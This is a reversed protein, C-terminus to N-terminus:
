NTIKQLEEIRSNVTEYLEKRLPEGSLHKTRLLQLKKSLEQDGLSNVWLEFDKRPVHFEICKLNVNQIKDVFNKLSNAYVGSHQDIDYYFHFAKETPVPTLIKSALTKDTKPIGLAQKGLTTITYHQEQPTSVYGAKILESMYETTSAFTLEAKESTEQITIPKGTAWLVWLIKGRNKSASM